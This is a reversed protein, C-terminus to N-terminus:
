CPLGPWRRRVKGGLAVVWLPKNDFDVFEMDFKLGQVMMMM